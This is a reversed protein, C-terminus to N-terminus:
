TGNRRFVARSGRTRRCIIQSSEQTAGIRLTLGNDPRILLSFALRHTLRVGSGIIVYDATSPLKETTRHDLLPNHRVGELWGSLCMGEALPFENNELPIQSESGKM